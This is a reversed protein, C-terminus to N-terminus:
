TKVGVFKRRRKRTLTYLIQYSGLFCVQRIQMISKTRPLTKKELMDHFGKLWPAMISVEEERTMSGGESHLTVKSLEPTKLM